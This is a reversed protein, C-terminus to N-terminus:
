FEIEPHFEIEKGTFYFYLNQFLHVTNIQRFNILPCYLSKCLQIFNSCLYFRLDGEDSEKIYPYGDSDISHKFQKFTKENLEISSYDEENSVAYLFYNSVMVLDGDRDKIYNGNRLENINM